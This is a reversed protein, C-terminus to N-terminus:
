TIAEVDMWEFYVHHNLAKKVLHDLLLIAKIVTITKISDLHKYVKHFPHMYFFTQFRLFFEQIFFFLSFFFLNEGEAWLSLRWVSEKMVWNFLSEIWCGLFFFAFRFKIKTSTLLELRRVVNNWNCLYFIM